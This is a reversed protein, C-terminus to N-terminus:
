VDISEFSGLHTESMTLSECDSDIADYEDIWQSRFIDYAEKSGWRDITLYKNNRGAKVLLETGIYDKAKSFFKVWVGNPGYSRKFEDKNEESVEYEWITIYMKKIAGLENTFINLQQFMIAGLSLSLFSLM